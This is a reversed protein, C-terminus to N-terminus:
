PPCPSAPRADIPQVSAPTIEWDEIYLADLKAAIFTAIADAPTHVIPEGHLNFSTNIVAPMGRQRLAELLAHLAPDTDRDVIQPRTTGDVHVAVPLTEALGPAADATVTMWELAARPSPHALVEDSAERTLMPAFAMHADRGLATNVRAANATSAASFLISRNGLARPGFADRGRYRGIVQGALLRDAMAQTPEVRRRQLGADSLAAEFGTAAFTCGLHASQIPAALQGQKEWWVRHAAGASLGMDGMAPFVFLGDADPLEALRQNIRVNAFLGGALLLPRPRPQSGLITRVWAATEAEVFAQLGAANDEVSRNALTRKLDVARLPQILKLGEETRHFLAQFAEHAQCSRGRAALGMVKGEDGEQFGLAVTTAGYLLALGFSIPWAKEAQDPSEAYRVTAARGEGFADATIVLSGARHPGFLATFAHADHHDVTHLRPTGGTLKRIRSGLIALAAWPELTRLGPWHAWRNEWAILALSSAALPARQPKSGKYFSQLLRQPARGRHGAIAVDTITAGLAAAHAIAAKLALDPFGSCRKRRTPREEALAFELAGDVLLAVSADHGDWLGLIARRSV